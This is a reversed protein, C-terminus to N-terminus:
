KFRPNNLHFDARLRAKEKEELYDELSPFLWKVEYKNPNLCRVSKAPFAFNGNRNFYFLEVVSFYGKETSISQCASLLEGSRAVDM